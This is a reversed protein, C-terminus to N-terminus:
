DCMTCGYAPIGEGCVVCVSYASMDLDLPKLLHPHTKHRVFDDLRLFADLNEHEKETLSLQESQFWGM